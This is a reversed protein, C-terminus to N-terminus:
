NIIKKFFFLFIHYYLNNYIFTIFIKVAKEFRIGIMKYLYFYFFATSHDFNTLTKFEDSCCLTFYNLDLYNAILNAVIFIQRKSYNM